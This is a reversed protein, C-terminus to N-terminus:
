HHVHPNEGRSPIYWDADGDTILGLADYYGKELAACRVQTMFEGFSCGQGDAREMIERLSKLILEAIGTAHAEHIRALTAETVADGGKKAATVSSLFPTKLQASSCGLLLVLPHPGDPVRTHDRLAEGARKSLV